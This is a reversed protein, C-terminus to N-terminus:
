FSVLAVARKPVSSRREDTTGQKPIIGKWPSRRTSKAILRFDAHIHLLFFSFVDCTTINYLVSLSCSEDSVFMWLLSWTAISNRICVKVCAVLERMTRFGQSQGIEKKAYEQLSLMSSLDVEM